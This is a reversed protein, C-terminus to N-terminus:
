LKGNLQIRYTRYNLILPLHYSPLSNHYDRSPSSAALRPSAFSPLRALFSPLLSPLAICTLHGQAHISLSSAVCSLLSPSSPTFLQLVLHCLCPFYPFLSLTLKLTRACVFRSSRTLWLSSAACSLLLPSPTILQLVLHCLGPFYPFLSFTLRILIRGCVFRSSRALWLFWAACSLLFSSPIFLQLVLHCLGPFYSFLSFTLKLTRACVCRSPRSHLLSSCCLFASFSSFSYLPSALSSPLYPYVSLHINCIKCM